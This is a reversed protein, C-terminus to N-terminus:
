GRPRWAWRWCSRVSPREVEFQRARGEQGVATSRDVLDAVLNLLLALREDAFLLFLRVPRGELGEASCKGVVAEDGGDEHWAKRENRLVDAALRRLGLELAAEDSMVHGDLEMADQQVEQVRGHVNRWQGANFCKLHNWVHGTYGTGGYHFATAIKVSGQPIHKDCHKCVAHDSKALAVCFPM